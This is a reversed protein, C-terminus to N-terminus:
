TKHTINGQFPIGTRSRHHSLVDFIVVQRVTYFQCLCPHRLFIRFTLWLSSFVWTSIALLHVSHNVLPLFLSLSVFSLHCLVVADTTFTGLNWLVAFGLFLCEGDFSVDHTRRGGGRNSRVEGRERSCANQCHCLLSVEVSSFLEIKQSVFGHLGAIASTRSAGVTVVKLAFSNALCSVQVFFPVLM